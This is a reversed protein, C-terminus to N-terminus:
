EEAKHEKIKAVAIEAIKEMLMRYQTKDKKVATWASDFRGTIKELEARTESTMEPRTEKTEATKETQARAIKVAKRDNKEKKTDKGASKTSKPEKKPKNTQKEPEEDKKIEPLEKGYLELYREEPSGTGRLDLLAARVAEWEQTTKTNARVDALVPLEHLGRISLMLRGVGSVRASIVAYGGSALTDMVFDRAAGTDEIFLERFGEAREEDEFFAKLMQRLLDGEEKPEMMVEIPTTKKEENVENKIERIEDRTLEKPLAEVVAEPITLMESLKAQGFGEYQELLKGEGTGYKEWIAIFRSTQSDELGYEKKAFEGMGKYGSGDLVGTDRAIALLYGIRVFNSATENMTRDMVAKYQEYNRYQTIENMEKEAQQRM